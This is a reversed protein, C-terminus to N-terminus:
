KESAREGDSNFCRSFTSPPAASHCDRRHRLAGAPDTCDLAEDIGAPEIGAKLSQQRLKGVTLERLGAYTLGSVM